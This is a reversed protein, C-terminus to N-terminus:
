LEGRAIAAKVQAAKDQLTIGVWGKAPRFLHSFFPASCRLCSHQIMALEPGTTYTFQIQCTKYNSGKEGKYGCGPCIVKEPDYRRRRITLITWATARIPLALGWAVGTLTDNFISSLSVYTKETIESM